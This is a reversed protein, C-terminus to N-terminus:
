KTGKKGRPFYWSRKSAFKRLEEGSMGIAEGLESNSYIFQGDQQASWLEEFIEDFIKEVAEKGQQAGRWASYYNYGTTRDYLVDADPYYTKTGAVDDYDINNEKMWEGFSFDKQNHQAWYNWSYWQEKIPTFQQRVEPVDYYSRKFDELTNNM